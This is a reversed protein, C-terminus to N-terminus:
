DSETDELADDEAIARQNLIDDKTRVFGKMFDVFQIAGQFTAYITERTKSHEPKTGLFQQATSKEFEASIALFIPHTLVEQCFHGAEIVEDENM